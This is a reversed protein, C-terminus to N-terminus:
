LKAKQQKAKYGNLYKNFINNEQAVEPIKEMRNVWDQVKTYKTIDYDLFRLQILEEYASLDAISPLDSDLNGYDTSIFPTAGLYHSNL